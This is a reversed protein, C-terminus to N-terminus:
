AKRLWLGGLILGGGGALAMWAFFQERGWTAAFITILMVATGIATMRWGIALGMVMYAMGIALTMVGEAVVVSGTPALAQIGFGLLTFAFAITLAGVAQNRGGRRSRTKLGIVVSGIVGLVILSPWLVGGYPARLVGLSNAVVWIVGWLILHPSAREYGIATASRDAAAEAEKLARAADERPITM